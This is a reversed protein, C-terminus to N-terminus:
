TIGFSIGESNQIEINPNKNDLMWVKNEPHKYFSIGDINLVESFGRDKIIKIPFIVTLDTSVLYGEGNINKPILQGDWDNLKKIAFPEINNITRTHKLNYTHFLEIWKITNESVMSKIKEANRFIKNKYFNISLQWSDDTFLEAIEISASRSRIGAQYIKVATINPLGTEVLISLEQLIESSVEHGKDDLKRAIGNLIWPLKFSFHEKIIRQSGEIQNIETMSDGRLWLTRNLELDENALYAEHLVPVHNILTEIKTLLIIKNNISYDDSEIFVSVLGIIEDLQEEIKLDSQLPIGSGIHKQWNAKDDGVSKVIGKVRHKIIKIFEKKTIEENDKSIQLYALSKRFYDEVWSVDLSDESGLYKHLTLL